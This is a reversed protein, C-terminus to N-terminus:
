IKNIPAINKKSRSNNVSIMFNIQNGVVGGLLYAIVIVWNYDLLAKIGIASSVLWSLQILFTLLASYYKRQAVIVRINLHKFFVLLLQATFVIIIQMTTDIIVM